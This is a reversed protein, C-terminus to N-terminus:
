KATAGAGRRLAPLRESIIQEAEEAVSRVIDGAPM